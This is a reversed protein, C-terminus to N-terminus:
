RTAPAATAMSAVLPVAAGVAAGILVASTKKKMFYGVAAGLAGLALAAPVTRDTFAGLGRLGCGKYGDAVCSAM